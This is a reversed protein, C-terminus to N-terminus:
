LYDKWGSTPIFRFDEISDDLEGSYKLINSKFYVSENSNYLMSDEIAKRLTPIKLYNFGMLKTLFLDFEVANDAFLMGGVKKYSPSLPGEKDGCVIMDGIYIINRQLTKTINGNKDAYNVIRNLDLITRWITDNGYWMGYRIKDKHNKMLFNNFNLMANSAVKWDKKYAINKLDDIWSSIQKIKDCTPYEDGGITVEGKRHHPLYEKKANVGVFNKLAGTYGALRHSKPKPISIIVDAELCISNLCYEQRKGDHHVNVDNADYNTIRLKGNFSEKYFYSKTSLNVVKTEFAM